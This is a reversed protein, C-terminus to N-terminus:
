IYFGMPDKAHSVVIYFLEDDLILVLQDVECPFDDDDVVHEWMFLPEVLAM